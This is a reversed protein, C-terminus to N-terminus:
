SEQEPQAQQTPEAMIADERQEIAKRNADTDLGQKYINIYVNHDEGPQPKTKLEINQNLLELNTYAKREDPTLPIM